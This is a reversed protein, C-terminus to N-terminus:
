KSGLSAYQVYLETRGSFFYWVCGWYNRRKQNVSNAKRVGGLIWGCLLALSPPAAMIAPSSQWLPACNHHLSNAEELCFGKKGSSGSSSNLSSSGSLAEDDESIDVQGEKSMKLWWEKWFFFFVPTQKTRNSYTNKQIIRKVFLYFLPLLKRTQSRHECM